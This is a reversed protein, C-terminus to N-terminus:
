RENREMRLTTEAKDAVQAVKAAVSQMREYSRDLEAQLVGIRALNRAAATQQARAVEGIEAVRKQLSEINRDRSAIREADQRAAAEFEAVRDEATELKDLFECNARAVADSQRRILDQGKELEIVRSEAKEAREQLAAAPGLEPSALSPRELETVRERLGAITIRADIAQMEIRRDNQQKLELAETLERERTKLHEITEGDHRVWQMTDRDIHGVEGDTTQMGKFESM